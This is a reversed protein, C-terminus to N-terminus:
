VLDQSEVTLLKHAIGIKQLLFTVQTFYNCCLMKFCYSNDLSPM